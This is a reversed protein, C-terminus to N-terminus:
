NLTTQSALYLGNPLVSTFAPTGDQNRALMAVTYYGSPLTVPFGLSGNYFVAQVNSGSAYTFTQGLPLYFGDGRLLVLSIDVNPVYVTANVTINNASDIAADFPKMGSKVSYNGFGSALNQGNQDYLVVQVGYNGTGQQPLITAQGVEIRQGRKFCNPFSISQSNGNGLFSITAQCYQGSFDSPVTAFLTVVDGENYQLASPSIILSAPGVQAQTVAPVFDIVLQSQSYGFQGGPSTLGITVPGPSSASVTCQGIAMQCITAVKQSDAKNVQVVVPLGVLNRTLQGAGVNTQVEFQAVVSAGVFATVVPGPYVSSGNIQVQQTVIPPPAPTPTQAFTATAIAALVVIIGFFRRNSKFM